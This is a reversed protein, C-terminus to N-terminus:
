SAGRERLEWLMSPALSTTPCLCVKDVELEPDLTHALFYIHFPLRRPSGQHSLQYLIRRHHPLALDPLDGPSAFPQGSWYEPGSFEM